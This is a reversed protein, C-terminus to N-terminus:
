KESLLDRKTSDLTSVCSSWSVKMTEKKSSLALRHGELAVSTEVTVIEEVCSGILESARAIAERELCSKVFPLFPTFLHDSKSVRQQFDRAARSESLAHQAIGYRKKWRSLASSRPQKFSKKKSTSLSLKPGDRRSFNRRRLKRARAAAAKV